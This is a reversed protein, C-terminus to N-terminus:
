RHNPHTQAYPYSGFKLGDITKIVNDAYYNSTDIKCLWDENDLEEIDHNGSCVFLPKNFNKIWHTVWIIQESLPENKSSQLFDGSISFVDFNEQQKAIWNFWNKNFHLDTTHLIKLISGLKNEKRRKRFCIM